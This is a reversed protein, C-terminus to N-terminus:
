PQNQEERPKEAPKGASKQLTLLHEEGESLITVASPRIKLVKMGQIEEDIRVIKGNIVAYSEGAPDFMIGQLILGSVGTVSGEDFGPPYIRQGEATLLRVLPDRKGKSQYEARAPGPAALALLGVGTILLVRRKDM